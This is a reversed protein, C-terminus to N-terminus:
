YNNTMLSFKRGTKTAFFGTFFQGRLHERLKEVLLDRSCGKGDFAWRQYAFRDVLTTSVTQIDETMEVFAEM